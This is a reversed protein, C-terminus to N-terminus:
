LSNCYLSSTQHINVFPANFQVIICLIAQIYTSYLSCCLQISVYLHTDFYECQCYFYKTLIFYRQLISLIIVQILCSVHLLLRQASSYKPVAGLVLVYM